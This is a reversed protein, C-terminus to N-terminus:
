RDAIGCGGGSSLQTMRALWQRPTDSLPWGGIELFWARASESRWAGSSWTQTLGSTLSLGLSLARLGRCVSGSGALSSRQGSTGYRLGVPRPWVFVALMTLLLDVTRNRLTAGARVALEFFEEGIDLEPHPRITGHPPEAPCGSGSHRPAADHPEAPIGRGTRHSRTRDWSAGSQRRRAPM